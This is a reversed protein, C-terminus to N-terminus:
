LKKAIRTKKPKGEYAEKLMTYQKLVYQFDFAILNRLEKHEIQFVNELVEDYFPSDVIAKYLTHKKSEEEKATKAYLWRPVQGNPRCLKKHYMDLIAVADIGNINAKNIQEPYGKALMRQTMFFHGQKLANTCKSYRVTDTLLVKVFEFLDMKHIAISNSTISSTM